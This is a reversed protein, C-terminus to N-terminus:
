QCTSDQCPCNHASYNKGVGSTRFYDLSDTCGQVDPTHESNCFETSIQTDNAAKVMNFLSKHCAVSPTGPHTICGNYTNTWICECAANVQTPDNMYPDCDIDASAVAVFGLAAIAFLSLMIKKMM